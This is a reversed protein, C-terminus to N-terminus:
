NSRNRQYKNMFKRDLHEKLKWALSGMYHFPGKTALGLHPGIMLIKLFSKQPIYDKLPSQNLFALLNYALVEGQRVAFVGAKPLPNQDFTICDGAAFVNKTNNVLLAKSTQLYGNTDCTLDGKIKHPRAGTTVFAFDCAYHRGDELTIKNDLYSIVKANSEIKIELLTLQSLIKERVRVSLEPLITETNSFLTVKGKVRIALASAVEIGASGAGVVAIQLRAKTNLFQKCKPILHSLPKAYIIREESEKDTLLPTPWIGTNISLCDYTLVSGSSLRICNQASNVEVAADIILEFGYHNRLKELDFLIEEEKYFGALFGPLMGSYPALSVDSVLIVRFTKSARPLLEGIAVLNSHGAGIMILTKM